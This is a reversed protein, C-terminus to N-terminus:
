LSSRYTIKLLLSAMIRKKLCTLSKSTGKHGYKDNVQPLKEGSEEIISVIM